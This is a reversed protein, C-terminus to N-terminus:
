AAKALLGAGVTQDHSTLYIDMPQCATKAPLGAVNPDRPTLGGECCHGGRVACVHCSVAAGGINGCAEAQRFLLTNCLARYTPLSSSPPLGGCSVQPEAVGAPIVCRGAWRRCARDNRRPSRNGFREMSTFVYPKCGTGKMRFVLPVRSARSPRIHLSTAGSM